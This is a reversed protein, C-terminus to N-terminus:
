QLKSEMDKILVANEQEYDNLWNVSFEEAEYIPEYWSKSNFYEQLAEDQFKRGHRAISMGKKNSKTIEM